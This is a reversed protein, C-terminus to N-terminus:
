IKRKMIHNIINFYTKNDFKWIHGIPTTIIINDNINKVICKKGILDIYINALNCNYMVITMLLKM